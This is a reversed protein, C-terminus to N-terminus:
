DGKAYLCILNLPCTTCRPSYHTCVKASFDLLSLNYVKSLGMPIMQKAITITMKDPGKKTSHEFSNFIRRYLRLVNTDIMAEDRGFAFCLIASATYPGIGPLSELPARENPFVGEFKIILVTALEKIQEARYLLGLPHIISRLDLPNAKSLAFISPYKKIFETYIPTVKDAFTQRLFIEAISINYPDKTHRWPYDRKNSKFWFLLECQIFNKKSQSIDIL